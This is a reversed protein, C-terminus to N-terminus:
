KITFTLGKSAGGGPTPNVVTVTAKGAKAIDSAPVSATLQTASVYTTTLGTGNWLVTSSSVFNTGTVTLTFAAGGATGSSPSLSAATPAPNNITFTLGSSAGGGPTPNVVTVTAKGAKAIDSAPVSATLQTASAYKTELGAGNWLVTSSTVFNTGTVTLTFAAGGATASSPSLSSATPLPNEITFTLAGSTGGGPTPNMVTVTATGATAIDSAPVLATLERGSVYTTTLGTGEWEVTSTSVFSTGRVTLTFAAGGATASSPSLSATRPAPNNITYTATAVASTSHGPATAIAEITESSSVMIAGTYETSSTTPTTGDTTYYITAKPSADSITVTQASSYTGSPLSFSPTPAPEVPQYVWLDNLYGFTDTSDYGSGGFLWFNGRGDTWGIAENRGGPVNGAAPTGLSGYVSPQGGSAGVTSSGGMWAWEIAAPIFVWLDNLNGGTGTSASGVGGFLWFNGSRDTWSNPAFRAGPINGPAPTGLSGYVGSAWTGTSGGMWTWENNAPNFKWLDNLYATASSSVGYGGFLWVNGNSDTWSSAGGRGGPINGAAPIGLTGYVGPQGANPFPVTSSGGMWAWENKAPNFEWLDNLFGYTGTSDYGWGGFLWLNGSSDTWSTAKQRGGPINAGAPTGLTGYVGPQGENPGPVTTSGGMWTWENKAPNFEWLDNLDGSTDTSDFGLGGFLWFKGNSDTWSSAGWRGGPINGAAPTGLSGYVGPQGTSPEAVTSSGGMWAWENAAPNFKWLDNLYGYNGSSDYGCGGFLWLNGSSDTWSTAGYRGSPINGPAPTGLTGYVGPQGGYAGPVTSSGGLWTWEGPATAISADTALAPASASRGSAQASAVVQTGLVALVTFMVVMLLRKMIEESSTSKV